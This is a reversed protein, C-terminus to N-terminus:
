KQSLLGVAAEFTTAVTRHTVRHEEAVESITQGLLIAKLIQQRTTPFAGLVRRACFELRDAVDAGAACGEIDGRAPQAREVLLSWLQRTSPRTESRGLRLKSSKTVVPIRLPVHAGGAQDSQLRQQVIRVADAESEHGGPPQTAQGSCASIVEVVLHRDNPFRALYQDATPQEGAGRRLECDVALLERLLSRRELPSTLHLYDEIRPRAGEAWAEEYQDCIADVAKARDLGMLTPHPSVTTNM